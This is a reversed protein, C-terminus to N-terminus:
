SLASVIKGLTAMAAEVRPTWTLGYNLRLCNEFQRQASFLPGPAVTIQNENARRFVDLAKVTPPLVVWLCYGGEPRTVKVNAPFYKAIAQLMRCQQKEFAQRIKRLHYNFGGHTLFKAIAEQAPVSTAITTVLKARAIQKAFRGSAVWGVRYGPALCKSFSSCHLVSGKRDFAKAPKPRETGFFLEGCVDDEILPIGHGELLKVLDRKCEEPVVSGLPNEFNTMLLCAKISHRDLVQALAPVSVGDRPHTPIEVAKLGLREIAELIVYFTPCEIAVLDGRETVTQLCLNIGELAGTTIVIEGPDVSCGSELYRLAIHRRLESNGPPLQEYISQPDLKLMAIHLARALKALPFFEPAPFASGLPVVNRSKVTDLLEFVLDKVDVEVSWSSPNSTKPAQMSRGGLHASVYHGSRPRAHIEGRDELLRYAQLVTGPSARHSRCLSRVSPIRDGPRLVGARIRSSIEEALQHYRAM